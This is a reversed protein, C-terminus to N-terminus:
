HSATAPETLITIAGDPLHVLYSQSEGLEDGHRYQALNQDSSIILTDDDKWGGISLGGPYVAVVPLEVLDDKGHLASLLQRFLLSPHGEEATTVALWSGQPSISFDGFSAFGRQTFSLGAITQQPSSIGNGRTFWTDERRAGLTVCLQTPSAFSPIDRCVPPDTQATSPSDKLASCGALVACGLLLPLARM